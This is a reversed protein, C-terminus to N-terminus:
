RATFQLVSASWCKSMETEARVAWWSPTEQRVTQCPILASAARRIASVPRSFPHIRQTDVFM